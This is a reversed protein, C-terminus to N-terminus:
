PHDADTVPDDAERFIPVELGACRRRLREAQAEFVVINGGPMRCLAAVIAGSAALNAAKELAQRLSSVM